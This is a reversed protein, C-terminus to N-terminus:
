YRHTGGFSIIFASQAISMGKFFNSFLIIIIIGRLIFFIEIKRDCGVAWGVRSLGRKKLPRDVRNLGGKKLPDTIKWM